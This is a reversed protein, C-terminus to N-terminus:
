PLRSILTQLVAAAARDVDWSMGPRLLPTMDARFVKDALKRALNEEYAARTVRAGTELM